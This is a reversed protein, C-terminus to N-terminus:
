CDTEEKYLTAEVQNQFPGLYLHVNTIPEQFPGSYVTSPWDRGSLSNGWGPEPVSRFVSKSIRVIEEPPNKIFFDKKIGNWPNMSFKLQHKQSLNKETLFQGLYLIFSLFRFDKLNTSKQCTKWIDFECSILRDM